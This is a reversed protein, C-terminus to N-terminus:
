VKRCWIINHKSSALVDTNRGFYYILNSLEQIEVDRYEQMKDFFYGVNYDVSIHSELSLSENMGILNVDKQSAFYACSHFGNNKTEVKGENWLRLIEEQSCQYKPHFMLEMAMYERPMYSFLIYGGKKCVRVCESICKEWYRYELHYLPGLCLVYDFMDNEYILMNSADCQDVSYFYNEGFQKKIKEVNEYSLDSAAVEYGLSKLWGAYVGTGASCDLVFGNPKFNETIFRKTNILEVNKWISDFRKEEDDSDYYKKVKEIIEDYEKM